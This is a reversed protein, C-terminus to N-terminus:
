VVGTFQDLAVRVQNHNTVVVEVFGALEEALHLQMCWNRRCTAWAVHSVCLTSRGAAGL